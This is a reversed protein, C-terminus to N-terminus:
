QGFTVSSSGSHEADRTAHSIYEGEEIERM